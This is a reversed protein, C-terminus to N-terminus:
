AAPPRRGRSRAPAPAAMPARPPLGAETLAARTQEAVTATIHARLAGNTQHSVQAVDNQLNVLKPLVVLLSGGITGVATLLGIISEVKWGAFSLAVGAVLLGLVIVAAVKLMTSQTNVPTPSRHQGQDETM